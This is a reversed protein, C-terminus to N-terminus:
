SCTGPVLVEDEVACGLVRVAGYPRGRVPRRVLSDRGVQLTQGQLDVRDDNGCRDVVGPVDTDDPDGGRAADSRGRSGPGGEAGGGGLAGHDESLDVASAVAPPQTGDPLAVDM